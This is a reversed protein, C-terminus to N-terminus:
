FSLSQSPGGTGLAQSSSSVSRSIFDGLKALSKATADAVNVYQTFGCETQVGQLYSNIGGGTNLGILISNLSELSESKVGEELATKVMKRTATSNNDEGDTIVFVVANVDFDNKVLERGYVTASQVANYTADYLATSGGSTGLCGTYDDENCSPLPKFGHLETVKHDFLVIRLMMNDARPNKRCAKVIEKLALEMETRFMSTSGSVDVVVLGLTYETAGLDEIRTASFGYNTGGISQSTMTSDSFVPM